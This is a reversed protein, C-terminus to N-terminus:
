EVIYDGYIDEIYDSDLAKDSTYILSLTMNTGQTIISETTNTCTVRHRNFSSYYSYLCSLQKGNIDFFNGDKITGFGLNLVPPIGTTENFNFITFNNDIDFDTTFVFQINLEVVGNTIALEIDKIDTFEVVTRKIFLEIGSTTNIHIKTMKGVGGGGGGEELAEIRTEHDAIATTNTKVDAAVEDIEEHVIDIQSNFRGIDTTNQVVQDNVGDLSTSLETVQTQVGEIETELENKVTEVEEKTAYVEPIEDIFSELNAIDENIDSIQGKINTIDNTNQTVSANTARIASHIDTIEDNIDLVQNQVDDLEDQTAFDETLTDLREEFGDVKEGMEGVDKLVENLYAIVKCLLEYTTLADFDEAIFPFQQICFDRVMFRDKFKNHRM